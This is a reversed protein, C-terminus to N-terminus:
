GYCHKNWVVDQPSECDRADLWSERSVYVPLLNQYVHRLV